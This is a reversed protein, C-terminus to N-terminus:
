QGGVLKKLVLFLISLVISVIASIAAVKIQLGNIKKHIKNTEHSCHNFFNTKNNDIKDDLSELKASVTGHLLFLANLKDDINKLNALVFGKFESMSMKFNHNDKTPM